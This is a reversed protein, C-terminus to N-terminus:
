EFNPKDWVDRMTQYIQKKLREFILCITMMKIKKKRSEYCVKLHRILFTISVLFAFVLVFRGLDM